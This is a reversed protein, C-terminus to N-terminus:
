EKKREGGMMPSSMRHEQMNEMMPCREQSKAQLKKLLTGHEALKSQLAAPNQENQIGEFSTVVQQVLSKLEQHPCMTGGTMMQQCMAMGSMMGGSMVSGAQPGTEPKAQEPHHEEHQARAGPVTLIGAVALFAIVMRTRRM